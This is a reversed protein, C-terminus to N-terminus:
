LDEEGGNLFNETYNNADFPSATLISQEFNLGFAETVPPQYYIKSMM